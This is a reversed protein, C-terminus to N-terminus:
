RTMSLGRGQNPACYGGLDLSPVLSVIKSLMCRRPLNFGAFSSTSSHFIVRRYRALYLTMAACSFRVFVSCMLKKDRLVFL